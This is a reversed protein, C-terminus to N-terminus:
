APRRQSEEVRTRADEHSRDLRGRAVKRAAMRQGRQALARLLAEPERLAEDLDVDVDAQMETHEALAARMGRRWEVRVFGPAPVFVPVHHHKTRSRIGLFSTEPAELARERAVADALRATDDAVELELWKLRYRRPRDGCRAVHTEVVRRATAITSWDLFAVTPHEGELHHNLYSRLNLYLGDRATALMWNSRLLCARFSTVSAWAVILGVLGFVLAFPTAALQLLLPLELVFRSGLWGVFGMGGGGLVLLGLAGVSSHRFVDRADEVLRTSAPLLRM